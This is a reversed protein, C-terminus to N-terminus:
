AFPELAALVDDLAPRAGADPELCGDIVAGLAAPLRRGRRV